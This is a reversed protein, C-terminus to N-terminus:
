LCCERFERVEEGFGLERDCFDSLEHSRWQAPFQRRRVLVHQTLVPVLMSGGPDLSNYFLKQTKSGSLGRRPPPGAM